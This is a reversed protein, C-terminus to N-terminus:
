YRNLIFRAVERFGWAFITLSFFMFGIEIGDKITLSFIDVGQAWSVCSNDIVEKCYYM